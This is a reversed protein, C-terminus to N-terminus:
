EISQKTFYFDILIMCRYSEGTKEELTLHSVYHSVKEDCVAFSELFNQLKFKSIIDSSNVEELKKNRSAVNAIYNDGGLVNPSRKVLHAFTFPEGDQHFCDPSSFGPKNNDSCIVKVIHVGAYIPLNHEKLSFTKNFYDILIDQLLKTNKLESSISNFYRINNHEHNNNGQDYGSLEGKDSKKTLLM